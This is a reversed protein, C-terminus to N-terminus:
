YFDISKYIARDRGQQKASYLAKDATILLQKKTYKFDPIVCSVGLSLSVYKSVSSQPHYLKLNKIEQGITKAVLLANEAPTQSLLIIFEEGGYRAVLDGPRRVSQSIKRAVQRLCVDGAQHGLFDNYLKFYDIDCIILSLPFQERRSRRWERILVDDFYRRNPINTLGDLTALKNLKQNLKLLKKETIQHQKIEQELRLNKNTLEIRLRYIELQNEVRAIVEDVQFPKTIYDRGGIEFAQTKNTVEKLASIFIIPIEETDPNDKLRQCVTFGDIEPMCIDLLILDPPRLIAAEIASSGCDSEEVEYGQSTLITSLLELSDARDDVVLIKAKFQSRVKSPMKFRLRSM